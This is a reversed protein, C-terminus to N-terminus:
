LFALPTDINPAHSNVDYKPRQAPHTHLVVLEQKKDAIRVVVTINKLAKKGSESKLAKAAIVSNTQVSLGKVIIAVEEESILSTLEIDTRLHSHIDQLLIPMNPTGELLAAELSALKEQM